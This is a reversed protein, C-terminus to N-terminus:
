LRRKTRKTTQGCHIMIQRIEERDSQTGKVIQNLLRQKIQRASMMSLYSILEDPPKDKKKKMMMMMMM